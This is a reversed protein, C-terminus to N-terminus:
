QNRQRGASRGRAFAFALLAVGGGLCVLALFGDSLTLMGASDTTGPDGSLTTLQYILWGAAMFLCASAVVAGWVWRRRTM